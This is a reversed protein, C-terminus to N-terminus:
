FLITTVLGISLKNNLWGISTMLSFREFLEAGIYLSPSFAGPSYVAGIGGLARIVTTKSLQELKTTLLKYDDILDQYKTRLEQNEQIYVETDATLKEVKESLEDYDWSLEYYSKALTLLVDVATYGDPIVVQQEGHSTQVTYIEQSFCSFIGIFVLFLILALKKM